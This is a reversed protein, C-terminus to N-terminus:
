TVARNDQTWFPFQKRGRGAKAERWATTHIEASASKGRRLTPHKRPCEALPLPPRLTSAEPPLSHIQPWSDGPSSSCPSFFPAGGLGSCILM